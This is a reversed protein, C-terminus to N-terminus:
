IFVELGYFFSDAVAFYCGGMIMHIVEWLTKYPLGSNIQGRNNVKRRHRVNSFKKSQCAYVTDLNMCESMGM